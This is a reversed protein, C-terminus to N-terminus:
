WPKLVKTHINGKTAAAHTFLGLCIDWQPVIFNIKIRFKPSSEM